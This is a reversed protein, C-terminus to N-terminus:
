SIWERTKCLLIAKKLLSASVPIVCDLASRLCMNPIFSHPGNGPELSVVGPVFARLHTLM